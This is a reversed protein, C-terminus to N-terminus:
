WCKRFFIVLIACMVKKTATIFFAVFPPFYKVSFCKLINSTSIEHIKAESLDGINPNGIYWGQAKGNAVNVKFVLVPLEPKM